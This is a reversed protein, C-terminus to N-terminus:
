ANGKMLRRLLNTDLGLQKLMAAFTRLADREIRVEPRPRPINNETFTLGHTALAKRAAEAQDHAKCATELLMLSAHDEIGYQVQLCRWVLQSAPTLYDPPYIEVAEAPDAPETEPLPGHRGPRYTGNVVHDRVPKRWRGSKSNGAM